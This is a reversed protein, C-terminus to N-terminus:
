PQSVWLDKFLATESTSTERLSPAADPDPDEYVRWERKRFEGHHYTTITRPRTDDPGPRDSPTLPEYDYFVAIGPQNPNLPDSPPRAPRYVPMEQRVLKMGPPLQRGSFAGLLDELDENEEAEPLPEGPKEPFEMSVTETAETKEPEWSALLRGRSDYHHFEWEGHETIRQKLKGFCAPREPDECYAYRTISHERPGSRYIHVPKWADGLKKSGKTTTYIGGCPHRSTQRWFLGDEESLWRRKVHRIVEGSVKIRALDYDGYRPNSTWEYISRLNGNKYYSRRFTKQHEPNPNEFVDYLLPRLGDPVQYLGGDTKEPVQESPYQDIRYRHSDLTTVTTLFEPGRIQRLIGDADLMLEYGSDALTQVPKGKPQWEVLAGFPIGPLTRLAFRYRNGNPKVMEAYVPERATQSGEADLLRVNHIGQKGMSVEAETQQDAFDATISTNLGQHIIVQKPAGSERVGKIERVCYGLEFRVASPSYIADTQVHTRISLYARSPTFGEAASGLSMTCSLAFAPVPAALLLGSVCLVNLFVNM